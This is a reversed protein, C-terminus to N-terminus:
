DGSLSMEHGPNPTCSFGGTFRDSHMQQCFPRARDEGRWLTIMCDFPNVQHRIGESKTPKLTPGELDHEHIAVNLNFSLAKPDTQPCWDKRSFARLPRSVAKDKSFVLTTACKMVCPQTTLRNRLRQIRIGFFLRIM